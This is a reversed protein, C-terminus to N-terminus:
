RSQKTSERRQRDLRLLGARVAVGARLGAHESYPRAKRGHSRVPRRRRRATVFPCIMCVLILAAPEPVPMVSMASIMDEGFHLKWVEYDDATFTSGLGDRWVTYDAADVAHDGNYDGALSSGIMHIKALEVRGSVALPNVFATTESTSANLWYSPHDVEEADFPLMSLTFTGDIDNSWSLSLEVIPVSTLGSIVVGAFEPSTDFDTVLVDAAPLENLLQPGPVAGFLSGEPASVPEDFTLDGIADDSKNLALGIQWTLVPPSDASSENALELVLELPSGSGVQYLIEPLEGTSAGQLHVTLGNAASLPILLLALCCLNYLSQRM